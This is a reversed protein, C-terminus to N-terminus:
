KKGIRRAAVRVQAPYSTQQIVRALDAASLARLVRDLNSGGLRPNSLLARQIEPVSLWAGNSVIVAVLPQPLNGNKAIRMVEPTTLNPNTLLPEWVAAGFHRELAVREPLAGQRAMVDREHMTLRRVREHLTTARGTAPEEPVPPAVSGSDGVFAELAASAAADFGQFQIGVGAGPEDQKVWVVDAAVRHARQTVPHVLVLVCLQREGVGTVGLVFARGKRLNSRWEDRLAEISAFSLPSEPLEPV